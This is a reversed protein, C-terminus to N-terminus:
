AGLAKIFIMSCLSLIRQNVIPRSFFGLRHFGSIPLSTPLLLGIQSQIKFGSKTLLSQIEKSTYWRTYVKEFASQKRRTISLAAPFFISHLNPYNFVLNGGPKLVRHIERVVKTLHPLHSFVNISVVTDVSNSEVKLNGADSQLIALRNELGEQEIRKRALSLMTESADVAILKSANRALHISIRGTGCGLDIIVSGAVDRTPLIMNLAQIQSLHWLHGSISSYRKRDYDIADREYFETTHIRDESM